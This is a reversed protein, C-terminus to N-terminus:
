RSPRRDSSCRTVQRYVAGMGGAGIKEHVVYQGLQVAKDVASQLGYITRSVVFVGFIGAVMSRAAAFTATEDRYMVALGLTFPMASVGAIATAVWPRTPVLAGRVVFFLLFFAVASVDVTAARPVTSLGVAATCATAVTALVDLARVLWGDRVRLRLALFVLCLVIAHVSQLNSIFPVQRTRGWIAALTSLLAFYGYFIVLRRYLLDKAGVSEASPLRDAAVIAHLTGELM